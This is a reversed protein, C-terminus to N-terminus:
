QSASHFATLGGISSRHGVGLSSNASHPKGVGVRRVQPLTSSAVTVGFPVFYFTMLLQNVLQYCFEGPHSPTSCPFWCSAPAEGEIGGRRGFRQM